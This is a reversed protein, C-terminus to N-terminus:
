SCTHLDQVDARGAAIVRKRRHASPVAAAKEPTRLHPRGPDLGPVFLVSNGAASGAPGDGEPARRHPHLDAGASAALIARHLRGQLDAAPVRGREGERIAEKKRGAYAQALGLLVRRQADNPDTALSHAPARVASDGYARARRLDGRYGYTQAKVIAWAFRDGSFASPTLRLLLRRRSEMWCGAWTGSIPWQVVVETPDVELPIARLAAPRRPPRRQRAPGDGQDSPIPGLDSGARHRSRRRRHGRREPAALPLDPGPPQGGPALPSRPSDARKLNDLANEWRGLSQESLAARLLLEPNNPDARRALAFQELAKAYDGTVFDYYTGLALRPEAADPGPGAGARRGRPGAHRSRRPRCGTPTATPTPRRSGPGPRSSARTSRSRGSTTRRRASWRRRISRSWASPPTRAESSPTRPPSTGPRGSRWGRRNERAWRWTSRRRWRGPSRARCRSSTPCCPTSRSSGAPADLQRSRDARPEGAGPEPHQRDEGVPGQRGAPLGRGAGPRDGPLEQHHGQVRRREPPRDGPTRPAGGLKGRVEDTM